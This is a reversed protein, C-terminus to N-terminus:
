HFPSLVTCYVIYSGGSSSIENMTDYGLKESSKRLRKLCIRNSQRFQM